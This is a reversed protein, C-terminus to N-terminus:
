VLSRKASKSAASPGPHVSTWRHFPFILILRSACIVQARAALAAFNLILLVNAVLDKVLELRTIAGLMRALHFVIAAAAGTLVVLSLFMDAVEAETLVLLSIVLGTSAMTSFAIMAAAQELVRTACTLMVGEANPSAPGCVLPSSLERM